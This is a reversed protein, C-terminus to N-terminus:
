FLFPKSLDFLLKKACNGASRLLTLMESLILIFFKKEKREREKKLNKKRARNKLATRSVECSRAVQAYPPM